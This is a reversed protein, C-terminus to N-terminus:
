CAKPVAKGDIYIESIEVGHYHAQHDRLTEILGKTFVLFDARSGPAISGAEQSDGCAAHAGRTYAHLAEDLTLAQAPAIPFGTSDLRDMASVIGTLPHYDRVVPADTSFALDVGADFVKRCPYVVSLYADDLYKRFNEGLERIFVPQMVAFVGMKNMRKLDIESPFGVHEIRHRLGYTNKRDMNEYARTVMELARDGIAHTAIRFGAAQAELAWKQFAQEDLRIIGKESSNRYPRYMAATRGSLGGDAFFKVTDICLRGSSYREPLPLPTTAGDPVRIAVAHIRIKLEGRRDMERYLELLDPMVAPDCASTVGARILADQAALIMARYAEPQLPPIVQQILGLATELLHGSLQGDSHRLIAGGLPSPTDTRINALELARTNVIAQHACTRIMYVPRDFVAKDLDFRDPFRQEELLVENFGRALIWPIDPNKSAFERLKDQLSRISDVGRLDLMQTMLHGLKWIHIHADCFAPLVTRGQLDITKVFSSTGSLYANDRGISQFTDARVVFATASTGYLRGNYFLVEDMRSHASNAM